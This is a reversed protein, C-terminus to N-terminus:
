VVNTGLVRESGGSMDQFRRLVIPGLCLVPVTGNSAGTSTLTSTGIGVHVPVFVQVLAPVLVLVPILLTVPLLVLVAVLVLM